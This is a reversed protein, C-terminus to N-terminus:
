AFMESLLEIILNKIWDSFHFERKGADNSVEGRRREQKKKTKKGWLRFKGREM